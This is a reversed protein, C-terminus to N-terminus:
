GSYNMGANRNAMCRPCFTVICGVGCYGAAVDFSDMMAPSYSNSCGDCKVENPKSNINDQAVLELHTEDERDLTAEAVKGEVIKYTVTLFSIGLSLYWSVNIVTVAENPVIGRVVANIKIDELKMTSKKLVLSLM